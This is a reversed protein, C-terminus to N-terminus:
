ESKVVEEYHEYDYPGYKVTPMKNFNLTPPPSSTQWELTMGGWPNDPAKKGNKLAVFLNIFM